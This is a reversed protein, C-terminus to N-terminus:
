DTERLTVEIGGGLHTVLNYIMSGVTAFATILIINVAGILMTYGLIRSASFWKSLSVGSSGSSSTVSELTRQVSDFVGLASLAFYLVAVAVFLIVWAVLSILFSFKMVSWPEFRAVVLDARRGRPAPTRAKPRTVGSFAAARRGADSVKAAVPLTREEFAPAAAEFTSTTEGFGPSAEGFGAATESFGSSTDAFGAGTDAFPPPYPAPDGTGGAHGSEQGYGSVSAGEPGFGADRGNSHLTEGAYSYANADDAGPRPPDGASNQPAPGPSGFSGEPGQSEPNESDPSGAAPDSGAPGKTNDSAATGGPLWSPPEVRQDV